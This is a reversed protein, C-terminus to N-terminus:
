DWPNSITHPIEGIQCGYSEAIEANTKDKTNQYVSEIHTIGSNWDNPAQRSMKLNNYGSDLAM